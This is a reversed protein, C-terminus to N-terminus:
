LFLQLLRFALGGLLIASLINAISITIAPKWGFEKTLMTFVSICPFYIMGVFALTVLQVPTLFLALNPSGFITVAGLLILEKRVLGLILFIGTIAPLGLWWVTFPAMANSVPTLVNLAYLVQLLASGVIYIPFVMYTISKTRAWTQKTVVKLSPVKFSHMEMILGTSKGPVAKMAIRGLVFIVALDVVYLALAWQVGLFLGVMGFLVITRAACPAFTIAFAALLRERRTEMIKCSHIAPVNCGYGLIIPILAKGHLGIKHMASDLMFAVRTLIGSDEVIALLLYFPIVFPVVLTLGANFGGWVGNWIIGLISGSM